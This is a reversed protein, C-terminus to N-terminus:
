RFAHQSGASKPAMTQSPKNSPDNVKKVKPKGSISNGGGAFAGKQPTQEKVKSKAEKMAKTKVAKFFETAESQINADTSEAPNPDKIRGRDFRVGEKYKRVAENYIKIVEAKPSRIQTDLFKVLDAKNRIADRNDELMNHALTEIDTSLNIQEDTKNPMDQAMDGLIRAIEFVPSDADRPKDIPIAENMSMDKEEENMGAHKAAMHAKYKKTGKKHPSDGEIMKGTPEYSSKMAQLARGADYARQTRIEDDVESDGGGYWMMNKDGKKKGAPKKPTKKSFPNIKDLGKKGYQFIKQVLNEKIEELLDQPMGAVTLHEILDNYSAEDLKDLEYVVSDGITYKTGDLTGYDGLGQKFRAMAKDQAYMDAAEADDDGFPNGGYFSRDKKEKDMRSKSKGRGFMRMAKNKGTHYLNKAGRGLKKANKAGLKALRLAHPAAMRVGTGLAGLALALPLAEKIQSETLSDDGLRELTEDTLIGQNHLRLLELVVDKDVDEPIDISEIANFSDKDIKDLAEWEDHSLYIDTDPDYYQGEKPDYYLIKGGVRYPGELGDREQYRDRDIPELVKFGENTEAEMGMDADGADPAMAKVSQYETYRRAADIAQSCQAIKSQVWPELNDRDGIMGHMAIADRALFYLQSRAMFGDEDDGDLVGETIIDEPMEVDEVLTKEMAQVAEQLKTQVDRLASIDVGKEMMAKELQGDERFVKSLKAVQDISRNVTNEIKPSM